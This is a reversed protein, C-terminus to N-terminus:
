PWFVPEFGTPSAVNTVVEAGFVVALAIQGEFRIARYGQEIVPTLRIPATLLERFAQRTRTMNGENLLSRWDTLRKRMQREIKQWSPAPAAHSARALDAVLARRKADSARLREVLVPIQGAGSAIAETVRAQEREVTALARRLQDQRDPQASAEFTERAAAIVEELVDSTLVDSGITALIERDIEEMPWQDVHACIEPGKNLHATCAYFHARQSAGHARTRVCVGGNCIACKGFGTLLYKSDQDRRYRRRGHTQRDYAARATDLRAHAADWLDDPVIRLEPRDVRLWESVPRDTPATKGEADRKRTKAWVIEGRYLSRHLVERVSSPSWGSPRGQQPRPSPAREANLQKAIRSYGMGDACWRFIRLLIAAHEDNIRRDVHGHVRVNDYGFVRGGTVHGAQAKRVMAERTWKGIQRRFEANMEARVFGVVNDSFSGFTFQTADQYFWIAIGTQALRKLEGFAEDGDRRSFRSADRVILAQFPAGAAIVDLLRQRNVLKRMEAGSIADDAYVHADPVRWGKSQAFARANAIQRDVSKADADAGIQETSKRAYIAATLM